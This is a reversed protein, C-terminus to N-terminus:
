SGQLTVLAIGLSTGLKQWVPGEQASFARVARSFAKPISRLTIPRPPEPNTRFGADWGVASACWDACGNALDAMDKIPQDVPLVGPGGCAFLVAASAMTRARMEPSRDGPELDTQIDEMFISRAAERVQRRQDDDAQGEAMWEAWALVYRSQ